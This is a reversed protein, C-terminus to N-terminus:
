TPQTKKRPPTLALTRKPMAGFLQGLVKGVTAELATAPTCAGDSYARFM